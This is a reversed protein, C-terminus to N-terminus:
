EMPDRGFEELWGAVIDLAVDVTAAASVDEVELDGVLQHRRLTM